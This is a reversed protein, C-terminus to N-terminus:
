IHWDQLTMTIYTGTKTAHGTPPKTPSPTTTTTPQHLYYLQGETIINFHVGHSILESHKSTFTIKAGSDTATRVSFLNTPFTPALLTDTLKIQRETSHNDTVTFVAVGRATALQNSRRGDALELYHKNPVFNTDFTIFKDPDNVIHSTAGCDVLLKDTMHTTKDTATCTKTMFTFDPQHFQATATKHETTPKSNDRKKKFCVKANHGKQHCYNYNLKTKFYCDKTTHTTNGCALCMKNNNNSTPRCPPHHPQHRRTHSTTTKMAATTTPRLNDTNAFNHLAAKFDSLSKHKNLQTHVVVFPKFSDPLGNLIMAILLNDSITEGATKLGTSAREARIIYDTIHETETM